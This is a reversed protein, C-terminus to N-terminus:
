STPSKSVGTDLSKISPSEQVGIEMEDRLVDFANSVIIPEGKDTYRKIKRPPGASSTQWGSTTAKVTKGDEPTPAGVHKSAAPANTKGVDPVPNGTHNSEVAAAVPTNTKGTDPGPKGSNTVGVAAATTNTKGSTPVPTGTQTPVEAVTASTGIVISETQTSVDFTQTQADKHTTSKVTKSYLAASFNEVLKRAEPYTINRTFKTKTIEKEKKWIPCMSSYSPHSEGCNACKTVPNLCNVTIHDTGACKACVHTKSKCNNEHHGFKQCKYCRLPNPIYPTVPITKGLYKLESPRKAFKFTLVLNNTDKLVGKIKAKMRRVHTVGFQEFEKLLESEPCCFLRKDRIIGKSSNLTKHPHIDVRLDCFTVLKQLNKSQKETRVEVLLKGDRLKEWSNVHGIAAYIAKDIKFPSINTFNKKKTDIPEIILFSDFHSVTVDDISSSTARWLPTKNQKSTGMIFLHTTRLGHEGGVTSGM